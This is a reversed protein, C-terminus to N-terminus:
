TIKEEGKLEMFVVPIRKGSPLVNWDEGEAQKLELNEKFGYHEYFTKARTNYTAVELQIPRGNKGLFRLGDRMMLGGHGQGQYEKFIYLEVFDNLNAEKLLHSYGIVKGDVVLVRYSHNGSKMEEEIEGARQDKFDLSFRAAVDKKTIGTLEDPYTSLWTQEEIDMIEPIREVGAIEITMLNSNGTEKTQM